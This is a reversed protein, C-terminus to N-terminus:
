QINSFTKESSNIVEKQLYYLQISDIRYWGVFGFRNWDGIPAPHEIGDAGLYRDKIVGPKGQEPYAIKAAPILTFNAGENSKGAFVSDNNGALTKNTIYYHGYQRTQTVRYWSFNENKM